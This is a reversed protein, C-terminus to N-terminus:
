FKEWNEMLRYLQKSLVEYEDALEDYHEQKLYGLDKTMQLIVRVENSSGLSNRSFHKFEKPSTKRGYGEVINLVVSVASRRLQSGLEYREQIPFDQTLHHLKLSLDYSKQYVKLDQYTKVM